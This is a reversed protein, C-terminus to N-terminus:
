KAVSSIKIRDLSLNLKLVNVFAPPDWPFVPKVSQSKVLARLTGPDIHRSQALIPVEWLAAKLDLDPDLGSASATVLAEPVPATEGVRAAQVAWSDRLKEVGQRFAQGDITLNSGGSALANYPHDGTASPRGVFYGPKTSFDQGILSSGVVNGQVTILSGNAQKPFLEQSVVMVLLPYGMGLLLTAWVMLRLSVFISKM